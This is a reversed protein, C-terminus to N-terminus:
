GSTLVPHNSKRRSLSASLSSEEKSVSTLPHNTNVVSPIHADKVNQQSEICVAHPTEEKFDPIITSITQL